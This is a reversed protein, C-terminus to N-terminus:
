TKLEALLNQIFYDSGQALKNSLFEQISIAKVTENGPPANDFCYQRLEQL